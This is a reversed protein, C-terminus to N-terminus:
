RFNDSLQNRQKSGEAQEAMLVGIRAQVLPRKRLHTGRM